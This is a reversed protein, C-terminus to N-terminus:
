TVLTVGRFYPEADVRYWELLFDRAALNVAESMVESVAFGNVAAMMKLTQWTSWTLWKPKGVDEITPHDRYPKRRTAM